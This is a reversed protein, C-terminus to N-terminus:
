RCPFEEAPHASGAEVLWARHGGVQSLDWGGRPVNGSEGDVEAYCDEVDFQRVVCALTAKIERMALDQGICLRTGHEFPRWGARPPFLEHLFEDRRAWYRPN